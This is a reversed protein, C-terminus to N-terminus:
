TRAWAAGARKRTGWALTMLTEVKLMLMTAAVTLMTGFALNSWFGLGWLQALGLYIPGHLLYFPYTARSIAVLRRPSTARPLLATL